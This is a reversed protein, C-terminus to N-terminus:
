RRGKRFKPADVCTEYHSHGTDFDFPHFLGEINQAWAILKGCNDGKCKMRSKETYVRSGILYTNM